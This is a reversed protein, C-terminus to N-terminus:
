IPGNRNEQREINESDNRKEYKKEMRGMHILSPFGQKSEKGRSEAEM